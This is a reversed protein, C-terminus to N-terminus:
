LPFDQITLDLDM